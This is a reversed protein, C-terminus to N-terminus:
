KSGGAKWKEDWKHMVCAHALDPHEKCDSHDVCRQSAHLTLLMADPSYRFTEVLERPMWSPGGSIPEAKVIDLGMRRLSQLRELEFKDQSDWPLHRPSIEEGKMLREAVPRSLYVFDRNTAIEEVRRPHAYVAGLAAGLAIAGGLWMESGSVAVAGVVDRAVFSRFGIDELSTM